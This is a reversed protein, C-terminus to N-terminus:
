QISMYICTVPPPNPHEFVGGGEVKLEPSDFTCGVHREVEDCIIGPVAGASFM